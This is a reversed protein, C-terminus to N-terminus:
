RGLVFMFGTWLLWGVFGGGVAGASAGILVGPIIWAWM